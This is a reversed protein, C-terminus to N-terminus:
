GGSKVKRRLFGSSVAFLAFGTLVTILGFISFARLVWNNFNDRGGYDMTHFMWLLDFTRWKKNRFTEVKGLESSVYVNTNGPHDFTVKWAPLPKERYEHHRSVTQIYEVSRVSVNDLFNEKAIDIAEDKKIPERLKGSQADILITKLQQRDFYRISYYPIQLVNILQLSLFSDPRIANKQLADTPSIMPISASLHPPQKRQFDGHIEDINSWSFYLGGITWLLFQIGLLVGLYRHSRRIFFHLKRSAM